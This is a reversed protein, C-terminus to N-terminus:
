SVLLLINWSRYSLCITISGLRPDLLERVTSNSSRLEQCFDIANCSRLLFLVIAHQSASKPHEGFAGLVVSSALQGQGSWERLTAAHGSRDSGSTWVRGGQAAIALVPGGHARMAEPTM